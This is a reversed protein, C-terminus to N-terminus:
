KIAGASGRTNQEIKIRLLSIRHLIQLLLRAPVKQSADHPLAIAIYLLTPGPLEGTLALSCPSMGTSRNMQRKHAYTRPQAFQDWNTQQDNFSQLSQTVITKNHWETQGNTQPHFVTTTPQKVGPFVCLANFFETLFHLGKKALLLDSIGYTMTWKDTFTQAAHPATTKSVLLVCTLKSYRKKMFIVYQNLVPTKPLQGFLDM